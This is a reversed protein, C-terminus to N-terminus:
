FWSSVVGDKRAQDCWYLLENGDMKYPMYMMLWYFDFKSMSAGRTLYYGKVHNCFTCKGDKYICSRRIQTYATKFDAQLKSKRALLNPSRTAHDGM